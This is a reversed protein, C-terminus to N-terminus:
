KRGMKVSLHHILSTRVFLLRKAIEVDLAIAVTRAGRHAGSRHDVPLEAFLFIEVVAVIMLEFRDPFEVGTRDAMRQERAEFSQM